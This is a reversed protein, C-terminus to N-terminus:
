YEIKGELQMKAFKVGRIKTPDKQDILFQKPSRLFRLILKKEKKNNVIDLYQEASEIFTAKKELFETRRGIGRLLRETKSADTM